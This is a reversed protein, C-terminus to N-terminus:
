AWSGVTRTRESSSTASAQRPQSSHAAPAQAPLKIALAGPEVEAVLRTCTGQPDGDFEYRDEPDVTIEVRTATLRTLRDDPRDRERRTLVRGAVEVWDRATRPSAVVVDMLGDTPDADPLLPIGAQLLGVNGLVILHARRRFTRDDAVVVTDLAPHRVNQAASIFYAGSGIARKLDPNAEGVIVADIGIGAFACFREPAQGEVEVRVLDIHSTVGDFATSLALGEDLPIGLNRALLNGTGAPILGLPIGTGALGDCIVRITGDGGAGLVLDVNKRVATATMARGPDDVTTELWIARRWGRSELEFDIHRMFTPVDLVKTPNFIVAARPKHGDDTVPAPVPDPDDEHPFAIVVRFMALALTSATLGWLLGGVIDSMWHAGLWWRNIAVVLVLAVAGMRWGTTTNHSRRTTIMTATVMITVTVIAAMHGSPYGFGQSTLLDPAGDPRPSAVLMKTLRVGVWSLVTGVVIARALNLLRRRWAWVGLILLGISCVVPMTLVAVASLIELLHGEAPPAYVAQDAATLLGNAALITWVVFGIGASLPSWARMTRPFAEIM